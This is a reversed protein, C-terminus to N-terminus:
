VAGCRGPLPGSRPSSLPPQLLIQRLGGGQIAYREERVCSAAASGSGLDLADSCFLAYNSPRRPQRLLRCAALRLRRASAVRDSSQLDLTGGAALAARREVRAALLERRRPEFTRALREVFALAEPTLVEAAGPVLGGAIAITM